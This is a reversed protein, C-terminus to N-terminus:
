QEGSPCGCDQYVKQCSSNCKTEFMGECKENKAQDDGASEFCAEIAKVQSNSTKAVCSICQELDEGGGPGGEEGGGAEEAEKDAAECESACSDHAKKCFGGDATDCASFCKEAKAQDTGAAKACDQAAKYQTNKSAMCTMCTKQAATPGQADGPNEAPNQDGGTPNTPTTKGDKDDKGDKGDKDDKDDDDDANVDATDKGAPASSSCAVAGMMAVLASVSLLSALKM